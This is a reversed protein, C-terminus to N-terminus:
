ASLMLLLTASAKQMFVADSSHCINLGYAAGKRVVIISKV